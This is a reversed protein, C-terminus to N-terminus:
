CIIQLKEKKLTSDFTPFAELAVNDNHCTLDIFIPYAQDNLMSFYHIFLDLNFVLKSCIM